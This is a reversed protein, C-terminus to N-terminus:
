NCHREIGVTYAHIMALCQKKTEFGMSAPNNCGGGNLMQIFKYGGYAGYLHYNGDNAVLKGQKNRTYPTAPTGAARNLRDIANELDQKSVRYTL